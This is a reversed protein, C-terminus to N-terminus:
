HAKLFGDVVAYFRDPQDFMVFHRAPAITAVELQPTGALLARYYDGKQAETYSVPGSGVDAADYPAIELLPVALKALDPRLDGAVDEQLWQAVAKPDSRATLPAVEAALQPDLTGFPGKMYGQEYALLQAQTEAAIPATIQTALAARQEATMREMQPFVPLGDVAVVGRLREPHQEGLLIALTGGLSHGILVPKAVHQAELMAWVDASARPMLPGGVAPRGDFGPLTLAYVTHSPALHRITGYWEWTGCTLGPILVVPDGKGYREVHLSGADFAADPKPAPPLTAAAGAVPGALALAFALALSARASRAFPLM